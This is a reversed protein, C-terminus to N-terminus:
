AQAENIKRTNNKEQCKYAKHREVGCRYCTIIYKGKVRIFGRGRRTDNGGRNSQRNISEDKKENGRAISVRGRGRSWKSRFKKQLKKDFNEDVKLAVQYAEDVNYFLHISM